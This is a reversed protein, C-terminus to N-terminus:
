EFDCVAYTYSDGSLGAFLFPTGTVEADTFDCSWNGVTLRNGDKELVGTASHQHPQNNEYVTVKRGVLTLVQNIPSLFSTTYIPHMYEVYVVFGAVLGGELRTIGHHLVRTLPHDAQEAALQVLLENQQDENLLPQYNGGFFEILRERDGFLSNRIDYEVLGMIDRRSERIRAELENLIQETSKATEAVEFASCDRGSRGGICYWGPYVAELKSEGKEWGGPMECDLVAMESFFRPQKKWADPLNPDNPNIM